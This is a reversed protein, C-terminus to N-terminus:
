TTTENKKDETIIFVPKDNPNGWTTKGVGSNGHIILKRKKKKSGKQIEKLSM